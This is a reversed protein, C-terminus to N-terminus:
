PRYRMISGGGPLAYRAWPYPIEEPSNRTRTRTDRRDPDPDESAITIGSNVRGDGGTAAIVNVGAAKALAPAFQNELGKGTCHLMTITAGTCMAPKLLNGLMKPDVDGADRGLLPGKSNGHTLVLLSSICMCDELNANMTNLLDAMNSVGKIFKQDSTAENFSAPFRESFERFLKSTVEGFGSGYFRLSVTRLKEGCDCGAEGGTLSGPWEDGSDASNKPDTWNLGFVDVLNVGGNGVFGYLNVGGREGIPDRSPWRGTVPDYWHYGYYTVGIAQALDDNGQLANTEWPNHSNGGTPPTPPPKPCVPLNGTPPDDEPPTNPPTVPGAQAKSAYPLQPPPEVLTVPEPM